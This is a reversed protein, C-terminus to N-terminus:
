DDPLRELLWEEYFEEDESIIKIGYIGTEIELKQFGISYFGGDIYQEAIKVCSEEHTLCIYISFTDPEINKFSLLITFPYIFPSNTAYKKRILDVLHGETNWPYDIPQVSAVINTSDISKQNYYNPIQKTSCSIIILFLSVFIPFYKFM